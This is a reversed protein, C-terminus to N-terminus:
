LRELNGAGMRAYKGSWLFAWYGAQGVEECPKACEPSLLSFTMTCKYVESSNPLFVSPQARKRQLFNACPEEREMVGLFAPVPPGECASVCLPTNRHLRGRHICARRYVSTCLLVWFSVTTEQIRILSVSLICVCLCATCHKATLFVMYCFLPFYGHHFPVTEKSLIHRWSRESSCSQIWPPLLDYWLTLLPWGTCLGSHGLLLLPWLPPPCGMPSRVPSTVTCRLKNPEHM